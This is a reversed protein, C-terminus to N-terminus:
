VVKQLANKVKQKKKPLFIYNKVSKQVLQTSASGAGALMHIATGYKHIYM